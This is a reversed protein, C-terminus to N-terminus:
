FPCRTVEEELDAIVQTLYDQLWQEEPPRLNKLIRLSDLTSWNEFARIGCERVEPSPHQLAALAITPGQPTIETFDLHAITRLIGTVVEINRFHEIFLFNLWEKTVLSNEALRNQLFIDLASNFGYEFDSEKILSLLSDTFQKKYYQLRNTNALNERSPRGTSETEIIRSSTGSKETPSPEYPIELSQQQTADPQQLPTDSPHSLNLM